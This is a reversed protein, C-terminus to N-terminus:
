SSSDPYFEGKSLKDFGKNTVTREIKVCRFSKNNAIFRARIDYVGVNLFQLKYTKTTDVTQSKDYVQEKLYQLRFPNVDKTGFHREKRSSEVYEALSEVYSMPFFTPPIYVNDSDSSIDLSQLGTYLALRIKSPTVESFTQDGEVLEQIDYKPEQDEVGTEISVKGFRDFLLNDYEGAIPIQVWVFVNSNDYTVRQKAYAFSAPIINFEIDLDEKKKNNIIDRFSDVKRLTLKGDLDYLIFLDDPATVNTTSIKNDPKHGDVYQTAWFALLDDLTGDTIYENPEAIAKIRNELRMYKYYDNSDLAYGINGNRVTITNEMDNECGYEDVITLTVKSSSDLLENSQYNFLLKVDKTRADIIFRCDFLNEIEELFEIVTWDPMMKAFEYSQIGNVMYANKFVPHKALCNYTVRYGIAQLVSEIIFCFYPQATQLSFACQFKPRIERKPDSNPDLGYLDYDNGVSLRTGRHNPDDYVLDRENTYYPLFHYTRTPYTYALSNYLDDGKNFPVARGLDLTRVGHDGGVLFNLESNGSVLQIKVLSDTYELIVEKGNLVVENDVVLYASRLEPVNGKRNLRNLHGYIRANIPDLLSLTIDYTYKGNKTFFPNEEIITISFTEPLVVLQKDIYLETM